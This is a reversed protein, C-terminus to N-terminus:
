SNRIHVRNGMRTCGSCGHPIIRRWVKRSACLWFTPHDIRYHGVFGYRGSRIICLYGLGNTAKVIEAEFIEAISRSSVGSGVGANRAEDLSVILSISYTGNSDTAAPELIQVREM